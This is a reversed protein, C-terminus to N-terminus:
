ARTYRYPGLDLTTSTCAYPYAGDLVTLQLPQDPDRGNITARLRLGSADTGTQKVRGDAARWSEITTGAYIGEIRYGGDSGTLPAADAYNARVIGDSGVTLMVGDGGTIPAAIQVGDLSGRFPVEFAEGRWTGVLCPDGVSQRMTAVVLWTVGGAMLMAVLVLAYRGYHRRRALPAAVPPPRLSRDYAVRRAPDSLVAYAQTVLRFQATDGARDPHAQKVLRRYAHRVEDDTATTPLGLIEYHTPM